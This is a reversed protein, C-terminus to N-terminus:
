FKESSPLPTLAAGIPRPGTPRWPIHNYSRYTIELHPTEVRTHGQYRSDLAAELIGSTLLTREIPYTPQGTIFMGEINLTLYSFHPHPAENHLYYETGYCRDGIRAAYALDRVYGNLMLVAGRLGDRYEVLFLAPNECHTEMPGDPKNQIPDCACKALDYSWLGERAAKWVAEGELCTVAAM